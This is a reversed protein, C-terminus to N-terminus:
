RDSARWRSIPLGLRHGGECPHFRIPYECDRTQIDQQNCRDVDVLMGGSAARQAAASKRRKMHKEPTWDNGLGLLRVVKVKM